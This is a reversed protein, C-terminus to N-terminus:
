SSYDTWFSNRPKIKIKSQKEKIEKSLNELEYNISLVLDTLEGTAKQISEKLSDRIDSPHHKEFKTNKFYNMIRRFLEGSLDEVCSFVMKKASEESPDSEFKTLLDLVNQISKSNNYNYDLNLIFTPDELSNQAWVEASKIKHSIQNKSWWKDSLDNNFQSQWYNSIISDTKSVIDTGNIVMNRDLCVNYNEHHNPLLPKFFQDNLNKLSSTRWGCYLGSFSEDVFYVLFIVYPISLSVRVNGESTGVFDRTEYEGIMRKEFLLSRIQPDQEIVVVSAKGKRHCFRCGRPFLFPTKQNIDWDSNINFIKESIKQKFIDLIDTVSDEVGVNIKQQYIKIKEKVVQTLIEEILKDTLDKDITKKISDKLLTSKQLLNSM